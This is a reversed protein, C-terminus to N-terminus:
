KITSLYSFQAVAVRASYIGQAASLNHIVHKLIEDPAAFGFLAPNGINLKLISQGEDEMRKAEKAIPGRIDYCVGALKSSRLIPQM